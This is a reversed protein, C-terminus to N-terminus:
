WPEGSFKIGSALKESEFKARMKLIKKGDVAIGIASTGVAEVTIRGTKLAQLKPNNLPDEVKATYTGNRGFGTVKYYPPFLSTNSDMWYTLVYERLAGQSFTKLKKLMANRIDILVQEGKATTVAQIAPKARIALKRAGSSAPLKYLKIIDQVASELLPQLKLKLAHEITGLGPNKFGIDTSGGTSKASWGIFQADKLQVLIDTPNKKQEVPRGVAAAMSGPRATWWVRVIPSNKYHQKLFARAADAMVRARGMQDLFEEESLLKRKAEFQAKAEASFWQEHNLFYGLALENIDAGHTNAPM